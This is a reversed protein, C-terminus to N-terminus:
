DESAASYPEDQVLAVLGYTIDPGPSSASRDIVVVGVNPHLDGDPQGFTIASAPAAGAWVLAFAFILIFLRRM